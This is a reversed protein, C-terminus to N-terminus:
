VLGHIQFRLAEIQCGQGQTSPSPLAGAEVEALQYVLSCCSQEPSSELCRLPFMATLVLASENTKASQTSQTLERCM